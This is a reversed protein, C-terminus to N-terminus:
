ILSKQPAVDGADRHNKIIQQYLKASATMKRELSQYDVQFLGFRPDFGKVWEFNDLLSWHYYGRIDVGNQVARAVEHLHERIYRPRLDDDHDAIGNETIYIPKGCRAVIKLMKRLGEPYVPWGLDSAVERDRAFAVNVPLAGSQPAFQVRARTYYNLGIYDVTARGVAEAVQAAKKLLFPFGFNQGLGMMADLWSQNYFQHFQYALWQEIPNWSRDAVFDIMNHAIGVQVPIQWLSESKPIEKHIVDYALVHSKLLHHCALSAKEPSYLAPPMFQGLYSGVTLVMPENLTCWLAVKAGLRQVVQRTMRAFYFPAEAWSFGGKEAFWQPLTFHHLTLMPILGLKECEQILEQYWDFAESDWQGESPELRSWEVSFRYSNLGLDAGLKLDQRFLTWHDTCVGSRQGKEVKGLAEWAWWDNKDNNGEVQHSSTAAGWLFVPKLTNM